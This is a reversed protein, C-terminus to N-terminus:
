RSHYEHKREELETGIIILIMSVVLIGTVLIPSSGGSCIGILFGIGGINILANSM